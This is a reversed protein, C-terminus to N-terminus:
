EGGRKLFYILIKFVIILSLIIVLGKIPNTAILDMFGSGVPTNYMWGIYSMNNEEWDNNITDSKDMEPNAVCYLIGDSGIAMGSRNGRNRIGPHVLEPCGSLAPKQNGNYLCHVSKGATIRNCIDSFHARYWHKSNDNM